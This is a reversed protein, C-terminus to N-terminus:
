QKNHKVIHQKLNWEGGIEKGCIECVYKKMPKNKNHATKGKKAESIKKCHEETRKPKPRRLKEKNEEKKMPNNEGSLAKSIKEKYEKDNHFDHSLRKRITEESQKNGLQYNRLKEKIEDSRVYRLKARTEESPNNLGEGGDTLNVLNGENLDKRGFNKILLKEIECAKEWTIDNEIIEISYGIKNTINLWYKNKRNKTQYARAKTQGVGVYFVENNDNRRHLYVVAM